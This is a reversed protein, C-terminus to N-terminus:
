RRERIWCLGDSGLPAGTRIAHMVDRTTAPFTRQVIDLFPEIATRNRRTDTVAVVLRVPRSHRAALWERKRRWGRLQNQWDLLFREIEFAVIETPGWFMQDIAEGHDGASEELTMRWREDAQGALWQAIGIQGSDRLGPGRGPYTSCVLDLGVADAAATINALTVTPTGREIRELTSRSVGALAAAEDRNLGAVHRAQRISNGVAVAQYQARQGARRRRKM